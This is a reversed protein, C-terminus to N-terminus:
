LRHARVTTREITTAPELILQTRQIARQQIRTHDIFQNLIPDFNITKCDMEKNNNEKTKSDNCTCNKKKTLM